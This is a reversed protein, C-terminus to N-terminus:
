GECGNRHFDLDVTYFVVTFTVFENRLGGSWRSRCIPRALHGGFFYLLTIGRIVYLDIRFYFVGGTRNMVCSFAEFLWTVCFFSLFYFLPFLFFFFFFFFCFFLWILAFMAM